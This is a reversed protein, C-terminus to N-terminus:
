LKRVEGNEIVYRDNFLEPNEAFTKMIEQRVQETVETHRHRPIEGIAMQALETINFLDLNREAAKKALAFCGTCSVAISIAGAAVAESVRKEAVKDALAQNRNILPYGCCMSHKRNHAMEVVEAGMAQLLQRPAEYIKSDVKRWSCSDQFAVTQHLKHPFPLAGSRHKELLYEAINQVEIDFGEVQNPYVDQLMKDCDPCFTIIKKIGIDNFRALLAKGKIKSEKEGFYRNVYGGCCYKMGGIMPFDNLLGTKALDTYVYSLSCGLYFVTDSKPPNTYIELDKEKEERELALGFEMINTPVEEGFLGMGRVGKKVGEERTQAEILAKRLAAPNSQTPCIVDCYTCGICYKLIEPSAKAKIENAMEERAKEKDMELIPCESLCKGCLKCTEENFL